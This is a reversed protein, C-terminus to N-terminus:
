KMMKDATMVASDIDQCLLSHGPVATFRAVARFVLCFITCDRM